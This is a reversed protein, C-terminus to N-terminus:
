TLRPGLLITASGILWVACMGLWFLSVNAPV